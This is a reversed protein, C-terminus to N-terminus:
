GWKRNYRIRRKEMIGSDMLDDVIMIWSTDGRAGLKGMKDMPFGSRRIIWGGSIDGM